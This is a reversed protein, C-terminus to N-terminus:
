GSEEALFIISIIKKIPDHKENTNTVMQDNLEEMIPNRLATSGDVAPPVNLSVFSIQGSDSETIVCPKGEQIEVICLVRIHIKLEIVEHKTLPLANEM